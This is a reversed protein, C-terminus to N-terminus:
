DNEGGLIMLVENAVITSGYMDPENRKSSSDFYRAMTFHKDENSPGLYGLYAIKGEIDSCTFNWDKFDFVKFQKDLRRYELEVSRGDHKDSFYEAKEQDYIKAIQYAFHYYHTGSHQIFPDFTLMFDDDSNSQAYGLHNASELFMQHVNGYRIGNHRAALVANSNKISLAILSDSKPTKLETFFIDIGIVKPRCHAISDILKSLYTRDGDGINFFV